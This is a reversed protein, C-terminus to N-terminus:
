PRSKSKQTMKEIDVVKSYGGGGGVCVCVVVVVVSM